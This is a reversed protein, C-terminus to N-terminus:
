GRKDIVAAMRPGDSHPRAGHVSASWEASPLTLMGHRIASVTFNRCEWEGLGAKRIPIQCIVGPEPRAELRGDWGLRILYGSSCDVQMQNTTQGVDGWISFQM